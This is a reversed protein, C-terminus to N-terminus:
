PSAIKVLVLYPNHVALLHQQLIISGLTNTNNNISSDTVEAEAM